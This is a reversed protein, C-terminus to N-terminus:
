LGWFIVSQRINTVERTGWPMRVFQNNSDFITPDTGLPVTEYFWERQWGFDLGDIDWWAHLSKGGSDVVMLLPVSPHRTAIDLILRAIIEHIAPGPMLELEAMVQQIFPGFKGELTFDFDTVAYKRLLAANELTRESEKGQKTHGKEMRMPNPVIQSWLQPENAVAYSKQVSYATYGWKKGRDDINATGVCIWEGDAYLRNLVGAIDPIPNSVAELTQMATKKSKWSRYLREVKAPDRLEETTPTRDMQHDFGDSEAEYANALSHWIEGPPSESRTMYDHVIDCADDIEVYHRLSLGMTYIWRHVGEGSAPCNELKTMLWPPLGYENGHIAVYDIIM